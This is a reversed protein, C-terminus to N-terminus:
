LKQLIIKWITPSSWYLHKWDFCISKLAVVIKSNSIILKKGLSKFTKNRGSSETGFKVEARWQYFGMTFRLSMMQWKLWYLLWSSLKILVHVIPRVTDLKSQIRVNVSSVKICRIIFFSIHSISDTSTESLRFSHCGSM